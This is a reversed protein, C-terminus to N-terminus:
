KVLAKAREFAIVPTNGASEATLIEMAQQDHGMKRIILAYIWREVDTLRRAASQSTLYDALGHIYRGNMAQELVNDAVRRAQEYDTENALSAQVLAMVDAPAPNELRLMEQLLLRQQPMGFERQLASLIRTTAKDAEGADVYAKIQIQLLPFIDSSNFGQKDFLATLAEQDGAVAFLRALTIRYDSADSNSKAYDS